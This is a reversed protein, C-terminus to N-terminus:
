NQEGPSPPRQGSGPPPRFSARVVDYLSRNPSFDAEDTAWYVVLDAQPHSVVLAAAHRKGGGSDFTFEWEAAPLSMSLPKLHVLQYGPWAGSDVLRREEARAGEVPDMTSPRIPDVALVRGGRPDAFCATSGVSWARWGIPVGVGFSGPRFYWTFGNVLEPTGPPGPRDTPVPHADAPAAQECAAVGAQIAASLQSPDTMDGGSGGTRAAAVAAGSGAAIAAVLVAALILRLRRRRRGEVDTSQGNAARVLLREVEHSSMRTKPDRRLLGEIVPKLSGAQLLPDPEQTALATLTEVVSPRAYPTRGEVAAYLTAGLSWLDSEVSSLGLRAREPALYQPTAILGPRTIAGDTDLTALGFDTLVVRGDDGILVNHPKVDRHLVGAGHAAQLAALVALGVEAAIQPPLPGDEELVKQLSRSPVYEMVIWPWKESHLVDYIKVVNPHNLRAAARAERLTLERLQGRESKTLWAPPVVEKIAVQRHLVEDHALWVRGMGGKGVPELLQYRGAIPAATETM